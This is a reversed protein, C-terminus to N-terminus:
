YIATFAVGVRRWIGLLYFDSAIGVAAAGAIGEYVTRQIGQFRGDVGGRSIEVGVEPGIHIEKDIGRNVSRIFDIKSYRRFLNGMRGAGSGIGRGAAARLQIREKGASIM